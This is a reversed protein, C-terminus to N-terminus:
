TSSKGLLYTRFVASQHAREKIKNRDIFEDNTASKNSSTSTNHEKAIQRIQRVILPIERDFFQRTWISDPLTLDKWWDPPVLKNKPDLVQSFVQILYQAIEPDPKTSISRAAEVVVGQILTEFRFIFPWYKEEYEFNSLYTLFM